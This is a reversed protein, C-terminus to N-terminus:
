PRIAEFVLAPGRPGASAVWGAPARQPGCGAREIWGPAADLDSTAFRLAALFPLANSVAAQESAADGFRYRFAVATLVEITGGGTDLDIGMSTAGM